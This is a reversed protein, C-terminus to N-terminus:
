SKVMQSFKVGCLYVDLRNGKIWCNSIFEDETVKIEKPMNQIFNVLKPNATILHNGRDEKGTKFNYYEIDNYKWFLNQCKPLISVIHDGIEVVLDSELEFRCYYPKTPHQFEFPTKAPILLKKEIKNLSHIYEILTFVQELEIKYIPFSLRQYHASVNLILLKSNNFLKQMSKDIAKGNDSYFKILKAWLTELSVFGGDARVKLEYPLLEGICQELEKRAYIASTEYDGIDYFHIAKSIYDGYNDLLIPANKSPCYSITKYIWESQNGSQKIARCIYEYFAKDHTFLYIKYKDSIDLLFDVVKARNSMDLSILMDDLAFFAGPTIATPTMCAFRVSLAIATLRAENFHSQPKYILEGNEKIEIGIKPTFLTVRDIKKNHRVNGYYLYFHEKLTNDPNDDSYFILKIDLNKDGENAFNNSYINNVKTNIRSILDSLSKNFLSIKAQLVKNRMDIKGSCDRVIEDYLDALFRTTGIPIHFPLIDKYFVNWLDIEESNRASHFRSIYSHNIFASDKNLMRIDSEDGGNVSALGDRDLQWIKGNDLIMRIYPQYTNAKAEDFRSKNILNQDEVVFNGSVFDGTKFYKAGKDEKFVSQLLVHLAYYLSSKGSGNEGYILLNKGENFDISFSKPFAKFGDIEIQTITAM